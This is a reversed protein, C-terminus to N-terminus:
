VGYKVTTLAGTGQFDVTATTLGDYSATVSYGTVIIAGAFKTGAVSSDPYFEFTVTSDTAPNFATGVIAVEADNYVIEMSGTYSQLGKLYKRSADGMATNEVVERSVSLSWSRVDAVATLADPHSAVKVSGQSGQYNAM